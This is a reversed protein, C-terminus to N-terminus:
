KRHNQLERGGGGKKEGNDSKYADSSKLLKSTTLCKESQWYGKFVGNDM